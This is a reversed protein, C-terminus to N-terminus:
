HGERLAASGHPRTLPRVLGGGGHIGRDVTDDAVRLMWRALAEGSGLVPVVCAETGALLHCEM